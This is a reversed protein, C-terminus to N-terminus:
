RWPASCRSGGSWSLRGAPPLAAAGAFRTCTILTLIPGLPPFEVGVAPLFDLSFTLGARRRGGAAPHARARGALRRAPLPPLPLAGDHVAARGRLRVAGRCSRTGWRRSRGPWSWSAWRRASRCWGRGKRSTAWSRRSSACRWRRFSSRRATPWSAGTRPRGGLRSSTSCTGCRWRAASSSSCTGAGRRGAACCSASSSPFPSSPASCCATQEPTPCPALIPASRTRAGRGPFATRSNARAAAVRM